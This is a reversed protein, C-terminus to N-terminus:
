VKTTYATVSGHVFVSVQKKLTQPRIPIPSYGIDIGDPSIGLVIRGDGNDANSLFGQVLIKRSPEAEDRFVRFYYYPENSSYLYFEHMCEFGSVNTTCETPFLSTHNNMRSLIPSGDFSIIEYGDDSYQIRDGFNLEGCRDTIANLLDKNRYYM